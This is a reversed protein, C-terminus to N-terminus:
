MKLFSRTFYQNRVVDFVIIYYTGASLETCDINIADSGTMHEVKFLQGSESFLKISYDSADTIELTLFDKTPVPYLAMDLSADTANTNFVSSYFLSDKKISFLWTRDGFSPWYSGNDNGLIIYSDNTELIGTVERIPWDIRYNRGTERGMADFEIFVIHELFPIGYNMIDALVIGGDDKPFIYSTGHEYGLTISDRPFIWSVNFAEDLRILGNITNAFSGENGFYLGGSLDLIGDHQRVLSFNHDFIQVTYSNSQHRSLLLISDQRYEAIQQFEHDVPIISDLFISDVQDGRKNMVHLLGRSRERVVYKGSELGLIQNFSGSVGEVFYSQRTYLSDTDTDFVIFSQRVDSRIVPTSDTEVMVTDRYYGVGIICTSDELFFDYVHSYNMSQEDYDYMVENKIHGVVDIQWLHFHDESYPAIHGPYTYNTPKPHNAIVFLDGTPSQRLFAPNALTDLEIIWDQGLGRTVYLM